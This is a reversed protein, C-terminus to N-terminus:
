NLDRLVPRNSFWERDSIEGDQHYQSSLSPAGMCWTREVARGEARANLERRLGVERSVIDLIFKDKLQQAYRLMLENECSFYHVEPNGNTNRLHVVGEAYAGTARLFELDGYDFKVGDKVALDRLLMLVESAIRTVRRDRKPIGFPHM